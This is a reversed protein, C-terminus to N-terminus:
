CYGSFHYKFAKKALFAYGILFSTNDETKKVANRLSEDITIPCKSFIDM